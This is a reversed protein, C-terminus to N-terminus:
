AAGQTHRYTWGGSPFSYGSFDASSGAEADWRREVSELWIWDGGVEVPHWAFWRNWENCNYAPWRM